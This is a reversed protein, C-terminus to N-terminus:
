TNTRVRVIYRGLEVKGNWLLQGFERYEMRCLLFRFLIVGLLGRTIGCELGVEPFTYVVYTYGRPAVSLLSCVVGGELGGESFTDPSHVDRIATM